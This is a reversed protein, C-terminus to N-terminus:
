MSGFNWRGCGGNMIQFGETLLATQFFGATKGGDCTTKGAGVGAFYCIGTNGRAVAGCGGDLQMCQVCCDTADVGYGLSFPNPGIGEIQQGAYNTLINSGPLRRLTSTSTTSTVLTSTTTTKETAHDTFTLTTSVTTGPVTSTTLFTSTTEKTVTEAPATITSLLSITETSTTVPTPPKTSSPATVNRKFIPEVRGSENYMAQIPTFLAPAAVTSATATTEVVTSEVITSVDTVVESVTELVLITTTSSFTNTIDKAIETVIATELITSITTSPEPTITTTGTETIATYETSTATCLVGGGPGVTWEGWSHHKKTTTTTTEPTETSAKTSTPKGPGGHTKSTTSTVSTPKGPGSYTKSSTSTPKSPGGHTSSTTSITSTPKGHGGHGHGPEDGEGPGSGNDPGGDHGEGPQGDHGPGESGNDPKGEDSWDEGPGVPLWAHQGGQEVGTPGPVWVTNGAITKTVVNCVQEAQVAAILPLALLLRSHM